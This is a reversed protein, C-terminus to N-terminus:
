FFTKKEYSINLSMTFCNLGFFFLFFVSLLFYQFVCSFCFWCFLRFLSEQALLPRPWFHHPGFTTTTTEESWRGAVEGAVVVLKARHGPQVLEPYTREKRHRAEVLVVGRADAAGRHSSGDCHLVSVLTTDVALQAGGYLSLGDVVVELRRNVPVGIDLDRVFRNTAVRGGSTRAAAREVAFGCARHHGFIDSLRGCRCCRSSPPLPLRLRRLLLVRFLQSEIRTLFSSPVASLSMGAAPGSQSRFLARECESSQLM